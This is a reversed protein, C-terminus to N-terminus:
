VPEVHRLPVALLTVLQAYCVAQLARLPIAAQVALPVLLPVLPLSAAQQAPPACPPVEPQTSARMALHVCRLHRPPMLVLRALLVLRLVQLPTPAPRVSMVVRLVEPLSTSLPAVLACPLVRQPSLDPLAHRVLLLALRRIPEPLVLLVGLRGVARFVEERAPV